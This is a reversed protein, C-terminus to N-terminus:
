RGDDVFTHLFNDVIHLKNYLKEKLEHLEETYVEGNVIKYEDTKYLVTRQNEIELSQILDLIEKIEQTKFTRTNM